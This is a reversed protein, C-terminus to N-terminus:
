QLPEWLTVTYMTGSRSRQGGRVVSLRGFASLVTYLAGDKITLRNHTLELFLLPSLEVKDGKRPSYTYGDNVLQAVTRKARPYTGLLLNVAVTAALSRRYLGVTSNVVYKTRM